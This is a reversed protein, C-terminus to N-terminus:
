DPTQPANVRVLLRGRIQGALLQGAAAIAEELAIEQTVLDLKTPDLDRALRDWAADRDARPTQVSDIGLLSINRLILPAVSAPFKIDQAMGCVTAAGRYRLGACVNALTPGGVTDIAAAWREKQLPKGPTSLTRRDIIEGAGLTKLYDAATSKGTSAVVRYGAAALLSIAFSGVGGSAGTVLVEGDDPQLGHKELALLCLAATYGATGIGTAQATSFAEPVPLVFKAPVRAYAAHGGWHTEGLGYGNVMVAQGPPFRSDTSEVVTGALDIGTVMPFERVVPAGYRIALADKYNLSSYEVRVLVEGAPLDAASVPTLAPSSGSETRSVLLAPFTSPVTSM